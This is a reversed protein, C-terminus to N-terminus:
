DGDNGRLAESLSETFMEGAKKPDGHRMFYAHHEHAIQELHDWYCKDGYGADRADRAAQSKYDPPKM